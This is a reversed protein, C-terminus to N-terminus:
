LRFNKMRKNIRDQNMGIYKITTLEKTHNLISMLTAIDGKYQKYFHYGFTKRMTHTGMNKLKFQREIDKFLQYARDYSLKNGYKSVFLYDQIKEEIIYKEIENKVYPFLPIKREKNTKKERLYIYLTNRVDSVKLDLIDSIRLGTNIGIFFIMYNRYSKKKLYEKIDSILKKDRIPEVTNM